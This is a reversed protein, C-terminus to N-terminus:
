ILLEFHPLILQQFDSLITAVFEEAFHPEPLSIPYRTQLLALYNAISAVTRYEQEFDTQLSQIAAVYSPAQLLSPVRANLIEFVSILFHCHKRDDLELNVEPIELFDFYEGRLLSFTSVLSDSYESIIRTLRFLYHDLRIADVPMFDQMVTLSPIFNLAKFHHVLKGITEAMAGKTRLGEAECQSLLPGYIAMFKTVINDHYAFTFLYPLQRTFLNATLNLAEDLLLNEAAINFLLQLFKDICKTYTGALLSVSDPWKVFKFSEM